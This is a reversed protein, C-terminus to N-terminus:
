VAPIAMMAMDATCQRRPAPAAIATLSRSGLGNWTASRQAATARQIGAARWATDAAYCLAGGSATRTTRRTATQGLAVRLCWLSRWQGALRWNHRTILFRGGGVVEVRGTHM